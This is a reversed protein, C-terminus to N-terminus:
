DAPPRQHGCGLEVGSQDRVHAIAGAWVVLDNDVWSVDFHAGCMSESFDNEDFEITFSEGPRMWYDECLPELWVAIMKDNHPNTLRLKLM